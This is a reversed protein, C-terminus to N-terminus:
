ESLWNQAEELQTPSFFNVPASRFGAGAFALAQAEWQSDGVIAIKAIENSHKFLFDLDNWDVGREWGEFKELVALLRPKIGAEIANAITTQTEAFESQKLVGTLRLLYTDNTKKEITAPM